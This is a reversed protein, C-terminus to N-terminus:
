APQPVKPFRSDHPFIHEDSGNFMVADLRGSQSCIFGTIDARKFRANLSEVTVPMPLKIETTM